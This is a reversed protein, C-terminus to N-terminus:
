QLKLNTTFKDRNWNQVPIAKLNLFKGFHHRQFRDNYQLDSSYLPLIITTGRLLPTESVGGIM